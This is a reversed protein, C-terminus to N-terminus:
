TAARCTATSRTQRSAEILGRSEFEPGVPISDLERPDVELVPVPSEGDRPTAYIETLMTEDQILQREGAVVLFTEDGSRLLVGDPYTASM